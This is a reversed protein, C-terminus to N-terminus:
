RDTQPHFITSLKQKINFFYCLSSWFKFIFIARHDNIISDPLGYHQIVINIIVKALRLTNITVKVLKYYVIKTLRNVIVLISVYSNGKEDASLTLGTVFDMSLDKWWYTPIPLSQLAWHPKHRVAKSALCINCAWVNTKVDHCITSWSYKRAELEWTKDIGFYGTLPDHHYCSIVEFCIIELIYLLGRYQFM